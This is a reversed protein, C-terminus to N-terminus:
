EWTSRLDKLLRLPLGQLSTRRWKGENGGNAADKGFLVTLNNFPTRRMAYRCSYFYLYILM